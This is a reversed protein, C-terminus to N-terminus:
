KLGSVEYRKAKTATKKKAPKQTLADYLHYGAIGLAGAGVVVAIPNEKAYAIASDVIAIGNLGDTTSAMARNYAAAAEASDDPLQQVQSTQAIPQVKNTSTLASIIKSATPGVGPLYNAASSAIPALFSIGKGFWTKGLGEITGPIEGSGVKHGNAQLRSLNANRLKFINRLTNLPIYVGLKREAAPAPAAQVVPVQAAAAPTAVPTKVRRRTVRAKHVAGLGNVVGITEGSVNDHGTLYAGLSSVGNMDFVHLDGDPGALGNIDDSGEFEFDGFGMVHGELAALGAEGLFGALGQLGGQGTTYKKWLPLFDEYTIWLGPRASYQNISIEGLGNMGFMADLTHDTGALAVGPNQINAGPILVLGQGNSFDSYYTGDVKTGRLHGDKVAFRLLGSRGDWQGNILLKKNFLQKGYASGSYTCVWGPSNPLNEDSLQVTRGDKLVGSNYTVTAPAVVASPVAAPPVMQTSAVVAAAAAPNAATEAPTPTPQSAVKKGKRTRIRPARGFDGFGEVIYDTVGAITSNEGEPIGNLFELNMTYDAKKSFPVEYDFADTVCDVTIYGPASGPKGLPKGSCPVVPYIHQFRAKNNYATIRLIHPIKLNTLISSIFTTYCDCDVGEFRDAWARAPRRVQEIGKADITYRIHDYVFHWINECTEYLTNGRLKQAILRTDDLYNAVVHKVLKITDSVDANTSLKLNKSVPIPFLANFEQGSKVKRVGKAEM